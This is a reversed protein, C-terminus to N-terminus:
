FSKKREVGLATPDQGSEIETVGYKVNALGDSNTM